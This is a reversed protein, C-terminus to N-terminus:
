EWDAKSLQQILEKMEAKFYKQADYKFKEVDEPSLETVAKYLTGVEVLKSLLFPAFKIKEPEMENVETAPPKTLAKAFESSLEYRIIDSEGQTLEGTNFFQGFIFRYAKLESFYKPYTSGNLYFKELLSEAEASYIQKSPLDIILVKVPAKADKAFDQLEAIETEKYDFGRYGLFTVTDKIVKVKLYQVSNFDEVLFDVPYSLDAYHVVAGSDEWRKKFVDLVKYKARYINPRIKDRVWDRFISVDAAKEAYAPSLKKILAALLTGLDKFYCYHLNVGEDYFTEIDSAASEFFIKGPGGGCLQRGFSIDIVAAINELCCLFEADYDDDRYIKFSKSQIPTKFKYILKPPKDLYIM